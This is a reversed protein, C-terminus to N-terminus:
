FDYIGYNRATEIMTRLNVPRTDHPLTCGPGIILGGGEGLQDIAEKVYDEVEEAAGGALLAPPVGVMISMHGKLVKMAELSTSGDSWFLCRGRPFQKLYHIHRGWDLDSHLLVYIGHAAYTEVMRKEFPLVFKEYLRPSLLTARGDALFVVPIGTIQRAALDRKIMGETLVNMATLVQDPRHTMDYIIREFTRWLSLTQFPADAGCGALVAAGYGILRRTDAAQDILFQNILNRTKVQGGDDPPFEEPYARTIMNMTFEDFGQRALTLYDEPQFLETELVQWMDDPALDIGPFRNIMPWYLTMALKNFPPSAGIIDPQYDYYFKEIALRYKEPASCMEAITMAANKAPFATLAGTSVPVRDPVKLELVTQYRERSSMKKGAM